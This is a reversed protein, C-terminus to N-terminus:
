KIKLAAKLKEVDFGIIIQGDIEIVPVGMQGSKKVMEIAAQRNSAVDIEQFPIKHETLWQKVRHCWPCVPTTYVIVKPM